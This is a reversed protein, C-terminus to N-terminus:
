FLCTIHWKTASALAQPFCHWLLHTSCGLEINALYKSPLHQLFFQASPSNCLVALHLLMPLESWTIFPCHQKLLCSWPLIKCSDEKFHLGEQFTQLTRMETVRSLLWVVEPLPALLSASDYIKTYQWHSSNCHVQFHPFLFYIINVPFHKMKNIPKTKPSTCFWISKTIM